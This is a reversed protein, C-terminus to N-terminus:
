KKKGKKKSTKKKSKKPQCHKIRIDPEGKYKIKTGKSPIGCGKPKARTIKGRLVYHTVVRSSKM